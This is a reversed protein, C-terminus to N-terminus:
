TAAYKKALRQLWQERTEGADNIQNPLSWNSHDREIRMFRHGRCIRRNMSGSEYNAMCSSCLDTEACFRCVFRVGKINNNPNDCGDCIVPHIFGFKPSENTIAQDFAYFAEQDDNALLLCHGLWNDGLITNEESRLDASLDRITTRLITTSITSRTPKVNNCFELMVELMPLDQLAWDFSTRGRGDHLLPNAGGALLQRAVDTDFFYVAHHLATESRGNKTNPNVGYQLYLLAVEKDGTGIVIHLVTEGLDTAANVDAGASILVKTLAMDRSLAARHLITWGFRDAANVDAGAALLIEIIPLCKEAWLAASLLPTHGSNDKLETLVQHKLLLRTLSGQTQAAIHLASRGIQDQANLHEPLMYKVLDEVVLNYRGRLALHLPTRGYRDQLGLDYINMKSILSMALKERKMQVQPPGEARRSVGGRQMGVNLLVHLPTEKRRNTIGLHDPKMRAILLEVCQEEAHHAALHLATNGDNAQLMIQEVTMMSLLIKVIGHDGQLSSCSIANYGSEDGIALDAPHMVKALMDVITECRAQVAAQMATRGQGDQIAFDAAKMRPVLIEAVSANAHYSAGHLVTKGENDQIIIAERGMQDLLIKAIGDHGLLTAVHLPTLGDKDQLLLDMGGIAVLERVVDTQGAWAAFHVCGERSRGRSSQLSAAPTAHLYKMFGFSAAVFGPFPPSTIVSIIHNKYRQAVVTSTSALQSLSADIRMPPEATISRLMAESWAVFAPSVNLPDMFHAFLRSLPEVEQYEKAGACHYAWYFSAYSAFTGPTIAGELEVARSFTSLIYSLCRQALEAHAETATFLGQQPAKEQDRLLFGVVSLHALRCCGFEDLVILNSCIELVMAGDLEEECHGKSDMSVATAIEDPPLDEISFLVWQLAKVAYQRDLTGPRTNLEMIQKYLTDTEPLTSDRELANLANEVDKSLRFRVKASFFVLLQLKVWIFMGQARTTLIQVLREELDPRRADLLRRKQGWVEGQVYSEIDGSNRGEDIQIRECDPFHFPIEVNMRSSLFIKVSSTSKACLDQLADLVESPATCEDLADIIVTNRPWSASLDAMLEICEGITPEGGGSVRDRGRENFMAKIPEAVSPSRSSTAMQTVLCRLVDIPETRRNQKQSIYFYVVHQDSEVVISPTLHQVVMAVACSKGTGVTGCLWLVSPEHSQLWQDVRPLLWQGSHKYQTGLTLLVQDHDSRYPIDCFWRLAKNDDQQNSQLGGLIIQLQSAQQSLAERLTIHGSRQDSSDLLGILRKCSEDKTKVHQLLNTWDDLLLTSRVVRVITKKAFHCAATAQLKLITAYLETLAEQFENELTANDRTLYVGEIAAYQGLLQNIDEVADLAGNNQKSDNM